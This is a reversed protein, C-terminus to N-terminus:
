AMRHRRAAAVDRQSVEVLEGARIQYSVVRDVSHLSRRAKGTVVDLETGDVLGILGVARFGEDDGPNSRKDERVLQPSDWIWVDDVSVLRCRHSSKSRAVIAGPCVVIEGEVWPLLGLGDNGFGIEFARAVIQDLDGSAVAREQQTQRAAEAVNALEAPELRGLVRMVDDPHGALLRAAANIRRTSPADPRDAATM